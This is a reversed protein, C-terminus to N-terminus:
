PPRYQSGPGPLPGRSCTRADHARRSPLQAARQRRPPPHPARTGIPPWLQAPLRALAPRAGAGRQAHACKRPHHTHWAHTSAGRHAAFARVCRPGARERRRRSRTGRATGTTRLLVSEIIILDMPRVSSCTKRQRHANGRRAQERRGWARVGPQARASAGGAHAPLVCHLSARARSRSNECPPLTIFVDNGMWHQWGRVM